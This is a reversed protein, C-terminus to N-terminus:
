KEEASELQAQARDAKARARKAVDEARKAEAEAAEAEKEAERAKERLARLREERRRDAAPTAKSKKPAKRAPLPMGAFADFGAPDLEESLRGAQVLEASDPDLAAARLTSAIREMVSAATSQGQEELVEHARHTLTQLADRQAGTAARLQESEGGGLAAKQAARLQEGSEILAELEDPNRRALQNVAWVPVTPKRLQKVTDAADSRGAEKLRRALDNRQATFEAPPLAYLDDLESELDPVLALPKPM